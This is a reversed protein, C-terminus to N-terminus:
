RREPQDLQRDGQGAHMQSRGEIVSWKSSDIMFPLKAIEPESALLNVFREMLKESDLMGEDLNIDILQAGGEVQSRAVDLAEELREETILKAFKKSGTVNTREGINMFMSDSDYILPELGALELSTGPHPVERPPHKEVRSVVEAIHEPTTGCCGGVLNLFGDKLFGEIQDAFYKPTEDYEGFENPLGANPYAIVPM